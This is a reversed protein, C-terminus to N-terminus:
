NHARGRAGNGKLSEQFEHRAQGLSRALKPVQSAGCLLALVAFVILVDPGIIEALM